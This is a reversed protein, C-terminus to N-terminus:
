FPPNGPRQKDFVQILYDAYFRTLRPPVANGIMRAIPEVQTVPYFVYDDRFSQLRAAERMSIGRLQATDPHGFRGNTISHCRTTITPSPKDASMRTYVDTFCRIGLRKNVRRHCALSLDGDPTSQLYENSAGPIAHSIRRKNLESLNRTAHNSIEAHIEGAELPPLGAFAEAVTQM